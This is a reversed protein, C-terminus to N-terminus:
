KKVIKKLKKNKFDKKIKEREKVENLIKEEITKYQDYDLAEFKGVPINGLKFPGHQTRKLKEVPYGFSEMLRRVVRNKGIRIEIKLRTSNEFRKLVEMKAQVLDGDLRVGHRIKLIDDHKILGQVKVEYVRIFNYKPHMLLQALDGDNTMLVLGTSEFDLRGVPFYNQFRQPLLDLVTKRDEEKDCTTVVGSPKHLLLIGKSPLELIKNGLKIKDKFADVSVACDTIVINNVKIKGAEILEESKRRSAVGCEALFKALRIKKSM